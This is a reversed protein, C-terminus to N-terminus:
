RCWPVTKCSPCPLANLPWDRGLCLLSDAFMCTFVGCDDYGVPLPCCTVTLICDFSLCHCLLRWLHSLCVMESITNRAPSRRCLQWACEEIDPLPRSSLLVVKWARTNVRSARLLSEILDQMKISELLTDDSIWRDRIRRFLFDDDRLREIAARVIEKTVSM